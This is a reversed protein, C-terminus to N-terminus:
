TAQYISLYIADNREAGTQAELGQVSFVTRMALPQLTFDDITQKLGQSGLYARTEEM